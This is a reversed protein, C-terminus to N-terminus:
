NRVPLLVFHSKDAVVEDAPAHVERYLSDREVPNRGAKLMAFLESELEPECFGDRDPPADDPPTMWRKVAAVQQHEYMDRGDVRVVRLLESRFYELIHTKSYGLAEAAQTTSLLGISQNERPARSDAELSHNHRQRAKKM